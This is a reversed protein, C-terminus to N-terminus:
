VGFSPPRLGQLLPLLEPEVKIIRARFDIESEFFLHQPIRQDRTVRCYFDLAFNLEKSLRHYGARCLSREVVFLRHCVRQVESYTEDTVENTYQDNSGVELKFLRKMPRERAFSIAIAAEEKLQNFQNRCEFYRSLQVGFFAGAVTLAFSIWSSEGSVTVLSESINVQVGLFFFFLSLAIWVVVQHDGKM